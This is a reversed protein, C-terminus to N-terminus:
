NADQTCPRSRVYLFPPLLVQLLAAVALRKSPHKAFQALSLGLWRRLSARRPPQGAYVWHLCQALAAQEAAGAGSAGELRACLARLWGEGCAAAAHGANFKLAL